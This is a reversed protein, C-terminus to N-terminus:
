AEQVAARTTHIQRTSWPPVPPGRIMEPGATPLTGAAGGRHIPPLCPGLRGPDATALQASRATIAPLAGTDNTM